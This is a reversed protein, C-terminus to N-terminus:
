LATANFGTSNKTAIYRGDGIMLKGLYVAMPHWAPNDAEFAQYTENFSVGNYVCLNQNTAFFLSNDYEKMGGQLGSGSSTFLVVWQIANNTTGYGYVKGNGYGYIGTSNTYGSLWYIPANVANSSEDMITLAQSAQLKGPETHIDLGACFGFGNKAPITSDFIIGFSFDDITILPRPM